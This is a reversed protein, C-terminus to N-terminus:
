NNNDHKSIQNMIVHAADQNGRKRNAWNINEKRIKKLISGYKEFCLNKRSM